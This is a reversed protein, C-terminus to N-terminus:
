LEAKKRYIKHWSRQGCQPCRRYQWSSGSAKYMVGGTEWVSQEFGCKPCRIMWERSEAEMAAKREPSVFRTFLRQIFNM